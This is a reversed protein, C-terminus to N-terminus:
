QLIFNVVVVGKVKVPQGSLRTPTFRWQRVVSAASQQRLPHGSVPDASVVKGEEDILVQVNVTGHARAATAIPPYAPAPKSIAKGNLVGGTVTTAGSPTGPPSGPPPPPPGDDQGPGITVGPGVHAPDVDRTGIVVTPAQRRPAAVNTRAPRARRKTVGARRATRKAPRRQAEVEVWAGCSVAFALSVVAALRRLSRTNM